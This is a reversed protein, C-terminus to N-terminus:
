LRATRKAIRMVVRREINLLILAPLVPLALLARLYKM